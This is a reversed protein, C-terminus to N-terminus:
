ALFYTQLKVLFSEIALAENHTKHFNKSCILLVEEPVTKFDKINMKPM